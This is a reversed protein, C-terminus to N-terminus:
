GTFLNQSVVELTLVDGGAYARLSSVLVEKIKGMHQPACTAM